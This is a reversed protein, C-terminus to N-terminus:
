KEIQMLLQNRKKLLADRSGSMSKSRPHVTLTGFDLSYLNDVQDSGEGDVTALAQEFPNSGHGLM